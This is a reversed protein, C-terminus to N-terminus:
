INLNDRHIRDMEPVMELYDGQHDDYEIKGGNEVMELYDGQKNDKLMEYNNPVSNITYDNSYDCEDYVEDKGLKDDDIDDYFNETQAQKIRMARRRWMVMACILGIVLIILIVLIHGLSIIVMTSSSMPSDTLQDPIEGFVRIYDVDLSPSLWTDYDQDTLDPFVKGDPAYCGVGTHFLINFERDFPLYYPDETENLARGFQDQTQNAQYITQNNVYWRINTHNWEFGYVQYDNLDLDTNEFNDLAKGKAHSLSAWIVSENFLKIIEVRGHHKGAGCKGPYTYMVLAAHLQVGIPKRARIEVRANKFCQITGITAGTFNHGLIPQRKLL